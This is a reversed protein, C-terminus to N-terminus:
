MEVKENSIETYTSVVDKEMRRIFVKSVIGLIILSGGYGFCFLLEGM